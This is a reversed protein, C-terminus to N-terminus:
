DLDELTAVTMSHIDIRDSIKMMRVTCKKQSSWQEVVVVTQGKHVIPTNAEAVMNMVDTYGFSAKLMAGEGSIALRGNEIYLAGRTTMNAYRPDKHSWSVRVRCGIAYDNDPHYDAYPRNEHDISLVPYQQFNIAEAIKTRDTLYKM